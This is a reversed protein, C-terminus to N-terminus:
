SLGAAVLGVLLVLLYVGSLKFVSWAHAPTPARALRIAVAGFWLGAPLAMALYPWPLFAGLLWSWVVLLAVSAAVARAARAPGATRVLTPVGGAVYDDAHAIAFGWFHGPTWLFLVGALLLPAPELTSAVTQWGALGAFSGAAGGWVVSYPTRPKLWWTYVLVYTAAGALLYATAGPGLQGEAALPVLSLPLGLGLALWPSVRGGPLPRGSTRPMRADLERDLFHNLAGAGGACALAAAALVALGPLDREGAAVAAAVASAAILAAIRLKLLVLVDRWAAVHV